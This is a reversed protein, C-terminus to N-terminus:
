RNDSLIEATGTCLRIFMPHVWYLYSVLRYRANEPKTGTHTQLENDVRQVGDSDRERWPVNSTPIISETQAESLGSLHSGADSMVDRRQSTKTLLVCDKNWGTLWGVDAHNFYYM